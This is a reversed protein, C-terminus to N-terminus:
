LRGASASLKSALFVHFFPLLSAKPALVTKKMRFNTAILNLCLFLSQWLLIQSDMGHPLRCFVWSLLSFVLISPYSTDLAKGERLSQFVQAESRTIRWSSAELQLFVIVKSYNFQSSQYSTKESTKPHVFLLFFTPSCFFKEILEKQQSKRMELKQHPKLQLLDLVSSNWLSPRKRSVDETRPDFECVKGQIAIGQRQTSINEETEDTGLLKKTNGFWQYNLCNALSKPLNISNRPVRSLALSVKREAVAAALEM